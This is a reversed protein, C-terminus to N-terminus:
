ENPVPLAGPLGLCVPCTQTNPDKGFHDAPCGCFMKSNTELEVHVELGILPTAKM